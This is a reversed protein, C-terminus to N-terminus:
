VNHKEHSSKEIDNGVFGNHNNCLVDKVIVRPRAKVETFIRGIYAGVIGVSLLTLGGFLWISAIVSAWGEVGSHFFLAKVVILIFYGISLLSTILGLGFVYKLPKDSFSTISDLALKLKKSFGYVSTGKDKKEVVIPIQHFGLEAFLGGLFVIREHYQLLSDVYKKSMLRITLLNAPIRTNSLMNIFGYFLKGSIREFFGGKRKRQIGYVVDCEEHLKVKYFDILVEPSEELDCDLLFVLDGSVHSLGELIAAHHGFNRSLDVLKVSSDKIILERVIDRSQDPSGDNVFIIEYKQGLHKVSTVIRRYFEEIHKESCYLTTVISIM